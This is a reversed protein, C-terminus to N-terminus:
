SVGEHKPRLSKQPIRYVLCGTTGPPKVTGPPHGLGPFLNPVVGGPCGPAPPTTHNETKGHYHLISYRALRVSPPRVEIGVIAVIGFLLSSGTEQARPCSVGAGLATRM